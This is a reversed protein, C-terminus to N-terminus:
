LDLRKMMMPHNMIALFPFSWLHNLMILAGFFYYLPYKIIDNGGYYPNMLFRIFMYFLFTTKFKSYQSFFPSLKYFLCYEHCLLNNLLTSNNYDLIFICKNVEIM